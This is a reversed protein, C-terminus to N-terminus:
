VTRLPSGIAGGTALPTIARAPRQPRRKGHHIHVPPPVHHWSLGCDPVRSGPRGVTEGYTFYLDHPGPNLQGATIWVQTLGPDIDLFVARRFRHVLTTPLYALNILLDASAAAADADLCGDAGDPLSGDHRDAVAITVALGWCAFFDRLKSVADRVDRPPTDPFVSTLWLVECDLDQLGLAWNISMSLYAGM